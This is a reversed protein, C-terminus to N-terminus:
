NPPSEEGLQQASTSIIKNLEQFFPTSKHHAPEVQTISLFPPLSTSVQKMLVDLGAGVDQPRSKYTFINTKTKKMKSKSKVSTQEEPDLHCCTFLFFTFFYDAVAIAGCCGIYM